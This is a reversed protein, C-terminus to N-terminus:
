YIKASMFYLRVWLIGVDDLFLILLLAKSTWLKKDSNIKITGSNQSCFYCKLLM